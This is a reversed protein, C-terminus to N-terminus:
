SSAATLYTARKALIILSREPSVSARVRHILATSRSRGTSRENVAPTRRSWSATTAPSVRCYLEPGTSPVTLRMLCILVDIYPRAFGSRSRLRISKVQCRFGGDPRLGHMGIVTSGAVGSVRRGGGENVNAQNLGTQLEPGAPVARGPRGSARRGVRRWESIAVDRFRHWFWKGHPNVIRPRQPSWSNQPSADGHVYTQPLSDLGDLWREVEPMVALLDDRLHREGTVAVAAVLAPHAWLDDDELMGGAGMKVRGFAFMRLGSGPTVNEPPAGFVVDSGTPRRGALVGLFRAADAFRRTSWLDSSTDVDEMWIAARDDDIEVIDYVAPLRVGVPLLESLRSRYADIEIRWPFRQVWEGRHSEPIVHLMPWVRASQLQKVFISWRRREAGVLAAARRRGGRYGLM